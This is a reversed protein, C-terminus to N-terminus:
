VSQLEQKLPKPSCMSLIHELRHLSPQDNHLIHAAILSLDTYFNLVCGTLQRHTLASGSQVLDFTGASDILKIGTHCAPGM